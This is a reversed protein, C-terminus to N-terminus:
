REDRERERRRYREELMRMIEAEIEEPTYRKPFYKRLNDMPLKLKEKQNAKEETMISFIVEPTLTAEQSLKKMRVAQSLSPICDESQILEWLEAQEEKTLYSLEVAPSFAIKKQDVMELLPPALETLRIYRQITARSDQSQSALLEDSRLNTELQSTNKAPRGAKRKMAELKMKYAFAKESPLLNERQINSDVMLITAEDDTMDRVLVPLKEIGLVEAAAKRRHGSVLEYGGDELPRAMLPTLIGYDKISTCLKEMEEDMQVKFPHNKFPSLEDPAIERVRELKEEDRMEQTSFIDDVSKLTFRPKIDKAM